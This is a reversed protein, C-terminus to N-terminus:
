IGQVGPLVRTRLGLFRVSQCPVESTWWRQWLPGVGWCAVTRGLAVHGDCWELRREPGCAPSARGVLRDGIPVGSISRWIMCACAHASAAFMKAVASEPWENGARVPRAVAEGVESVPIHKHGAVSVRWQRWQGLSRRPVALEGHRRQWSGGVLASLSAKLRMVKKLQRAGRGMQRRQRLAFARM